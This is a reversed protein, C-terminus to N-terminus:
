LQEEGIADAGSGTRVRRRPGRGGGSASPTAALHEADYILHSEDEQQQAAWHAEGLAAQYSDARGSSSPSAMGRSGRTSARSTRRYRVDLEVEGLDVEYMEGAGGDSVGDGVLMPEYDEGREAGRVARELM